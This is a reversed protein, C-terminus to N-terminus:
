ELWNGETKGEKLCPQLMHCCHQFCITAVYFVRSLCMRLLVNLRVAQYGDQVKMFSEFRSAVTISPWLCGGQRNVRQMWLRKLRYIDNPASKEVKGAFPYFAVKNRDAFNGIGYESRIGCLVGKQHLFCCKLSWGVAFHVQRDYACAGRSLISRQGM